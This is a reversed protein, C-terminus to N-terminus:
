GGEEGAATVALSFRTCVFCIDLLVPRPRRCCQCNTGGREWSTAAWAWSYVVASNSPAVTCSSAISPWAYSSIPPVTSKVISRVRCTTLSAMALLAETTTAYRVHRHQPRASRAQTPSHQCFFIWDNPFFSYGRQPTRVGPLLCQEVKGSGSDSHPTGHRARPRAQVATSFYRPRPLDIRGVGSDVGDRAVAQAVPQGVDAGAVVGLAREPELEGDAAVSSRQRPVLVVAVEIELGKALFQSLIPGYLGGICSWCTPGRAAM